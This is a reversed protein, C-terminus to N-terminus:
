QTITIITNNYQTFICCQIHERFVTLDLVLTFVQLRQGAQCQYVFVQWREFCECTKVMVKVELTLTHIHSCCLIVNMYSPEAEVTTKAEHGACCFQGTAMRWCGLHSRKRARDWCSWNFFSGSCFCCCRTCSLVHSDFKVETRHFESWLPPLWSATWCDRGLKRGVCTPSPAKLLCSLIYWVCCCTWDCQIFPQVMHAANQLWWITFFLGSRGGDPSVSVSVPVPFHQQCQQFHQYWYGPTRWDTCWDSVM